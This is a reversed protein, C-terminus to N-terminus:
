RKPGHRSQYRRRPVNMSLILIALASTAAAIVTLVIVDTWFLVLIDKPRWIQFVASLDLAMAFAIGQYMFLRGLKHTRWPSLSYIVPVSTTALAAIITVVRIWERLTNIDRTM